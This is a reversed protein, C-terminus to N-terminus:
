MDGTLTDYGLGRYVYPRFPLGNRPPERRILAARGRGETSQIGARLRRRAEAHDVAFRATPLTTAFQREVTRGTATLGSASHREGM